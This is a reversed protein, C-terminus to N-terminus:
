LHLTLYAQSFPYSIGPWMLFCEWNMFVTLTPKYKM